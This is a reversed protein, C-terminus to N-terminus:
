DSGPASLRCPTCPSDSICSWSRPCFWSRTSHSARTSLPELGSTPQITVPRISVWAIGPVEALTVILVLVKHVRDTHTDIQWAMPAGVAASITVFSPWCVDCAQSTSYTSLGFELNLTSNVIQVSHCSGLLASGPRVRSQIRDTSCLAARSIVPM